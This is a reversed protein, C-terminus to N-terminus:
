FLIKLAVQRWYSWISKIVPLQHVDNDDKVKVKLFTGALPTGLGSKKSFEDINFEFRNSTNLFSYDFDPPQAYLLAVYRHFGSGPPPAPPMYDNVPSSSSRLVISGPVHKSDGDITLNGAFMHRVQSWKPNSRSPADPDILFFVFTGPWGPGEFSLEPPSSTTDKAFKKGPLVIRSNKHKFSNSTYTLYLLSSPEFESLVDPVIHAKHFSEKVQDLAPQTHKVHENLSCNHTPAAATLGSSLALTVFLSTCRM